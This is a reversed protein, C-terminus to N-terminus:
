TLFSLYQIFKQQTRAKKNKLTRVISDATLDPVLHMYFNTIATGCVSKYSLHKTKHLMVKCLVTYSQM